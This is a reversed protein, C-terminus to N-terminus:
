RGHAEGAESFSPRVISSLDALEVDLVECTSNSVQGVAMGVNMGGLGNRARYQMTVRHSGEVNPGIRTEAHEFSEPDRLSAKVTDVLGSHSGDWASLCHFGKRRDEAAAAERQVKQEASEGGTFACVGIVLAGIVACGMAGAKNAQTTGRRAEALDAESFEHQCFRCVKADSKIVEACRPCKKEGPKM